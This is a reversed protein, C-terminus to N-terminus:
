KGDLTEERIYVRVAFGKGREKKGNDIGELVIM